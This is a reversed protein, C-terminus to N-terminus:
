VGAFEEPQEGSQHANRCLFNPWALVRFVSESEERSAAAGDIDM